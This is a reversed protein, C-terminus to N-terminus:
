ANIMKYLLSQNNRNNVFVDGYARYSDSCMQRFISYFKRDDNTNALNKFHGELKARYACEETLSCSAMVFSKIMLHPYSDISHAWKHIRSRITEESLYKKEVSFNDEEEGNQNKKLAKTIIMALFDEFLENDSANLISRALEYNDARKKDVKFSITVLNEDDFFAM